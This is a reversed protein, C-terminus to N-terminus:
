IYIIIDYTYGKILCYGSSLGLTWQEGKQIEKRAAGVHGEECALHLATAGRLDQRDEFSTTRHCRYIWWFISFTM